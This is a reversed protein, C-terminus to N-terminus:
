GAHRVYRKQLFDAARTLSMPIGYIRRSPSVLLCPVGAVDSRLMMRRGESTDADLTRLRCGAMDAAEQWFCRSAQSQPCWDSAFLTPFVQDGRELIPPTAIPPDNRGDRGALLDDINPVPSFGRPGLYARCYIGAPGHRWAQFERGDVLITPSGRLGRDLAQAHGQVLCLESAIRWHGEEHRAHLGAMLDLSFQCGKYAVVRM